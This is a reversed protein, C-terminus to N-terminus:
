TDFHPQLYRVTLKDINHLFPTCTHTNVARWLSNGTHVPLGAQNPRQQHGSPSTFTVRHLECLGPVLLPPLPCTLATLTIPDLDTDVQLEAVRVRHEGGAGCQERGRSLSPLTFLSFLFGPGRPATSIYSLLRCLLMQLVGPDGIFYLTMRGGIVGEVVVWVCM